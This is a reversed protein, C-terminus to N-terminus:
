LEGRKMTMSLGIEIFRLVVVAFGLICVALGMLCVFKEVFSDAGDTGDM